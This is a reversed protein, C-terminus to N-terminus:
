DKYINKHQRLMCDDIIVKLNHNKAINIAKDNIVGDQFWVVKANIKIADKVIPVVFKPNRFIDVIDIRNSIEILSSYCKMNNINQYTPNVPYIKFGRKKLYHAVYNSPRNPNPSMGVVAISNMEFISEFQDKNTM